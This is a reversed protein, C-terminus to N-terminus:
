KCSIAKLKSDLTVLPPNPFLSSMKKVYPYWEINFEDM